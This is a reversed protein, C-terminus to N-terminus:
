RSRSTGRSSRSPGEGVAGAAPGLGRRRASVGGRLRARLDPHDRARVGLRPRQLRPHRRRAEARRDVEELPEYGKFLPAWYPQEQTKRQRHGRRDGPVHSTGVGAIIKGDARTRRSTRERLPQGRDLPRGALMMEAYEEQTIGTMIRRWTSSPSGTPRSRAEGHLLHQRRARDHPELRARLVAERQAETMPFRECISASTRASGDRNEAKM